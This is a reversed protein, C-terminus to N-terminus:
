ALESGYPERQEERHECYQIGAGTAAATRRGSFRGLDGRTFLSYNGILHDGAQFNQKTIRRVEHTALADPEQRILCRDGRGALATDIEQVLRWIHLEDCQIPGLVSEATTHFTAHLDLAPAVLSGADGDM